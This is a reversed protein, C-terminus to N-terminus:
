RARLDGLSAAEARVDREAVPLSIFVTSDLSPDLVVPELIGVVTFWTSGIYVLLHGGVHTIQLTAAASAGLVAEPFREASRM